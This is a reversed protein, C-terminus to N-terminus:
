KLEKARETSAVVAEIFASRVGAKELARIGAITTGGPSCVDGKLKGPAENTTSVMKAAGFVMNAALETATDRSLGCSVGGDALAEIMTYIINGSVFAPGFGSIAGGADFQSEDLELVSGVSEFLLKGAAIADDDAERHACILTMGCGILCPTNPTVRILNKCGTEPFLFSLEKALTETDIAALISCLITSNKAFLSCFPKMEAFLQQRNQPKCALLIITKGNELSKSQKGYNEALKENSVYCNKYGLLLWKDLSTTSRTSIYITSHTLLGAKVIGEAIALAM